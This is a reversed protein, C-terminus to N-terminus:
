NGPIPERSNSVQVGEHLAQIDLAINMLIQVEEEDIWTGDTWKVIGPWEIVYVAGPLTYGNLVLIKGDIERLFTAGHSYLGFEYGRDSRFRANDIKTLGSAM